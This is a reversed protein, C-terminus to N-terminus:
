TSDASRRYCAYALGVVSEGSFLHFIGYGPTERSPSSSSQSLEM